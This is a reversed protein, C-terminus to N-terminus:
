RLGPGTPGPADPVPENLLEGDAAWISCCRACYAEGTLTPHLMAVDHRLCSIWLRYRDAGLREAAREIAERTTAVRDESPRYIVTSAASVCSRWAPACRMGIRIVKGFSSTARSGIRSREADRPPPEWKRQRQRATHM